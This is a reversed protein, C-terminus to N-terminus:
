HGGALGPPIPSFKPEPLGEQEGIIALGLTRLTAVNTGVANRQRFTHRNICVGRKGLNRERRKVHFLCPRGRRSARGGGNPVSRFPNIDFDQGRIQATMIMDSAM